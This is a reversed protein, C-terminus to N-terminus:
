RKQMEWPSIFQYKQGYACVGPRVFHLFNEEQWTLTMGKINGGLDEILMGNLAQRVALLLRRVDLSAEGRGRLNEGIVIVEIEASVMSLVARSGSSATNSKAGAYITYAAPLALTLPGIEDLSGQLGEVTRFLSLAKLKEVILEEVAINDVM